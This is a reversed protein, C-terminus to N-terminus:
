RRTQTADIYMVKYRWARIAEEPSKGNERLNSMFARLTGHEFDYRYYDQLEPSLKRVFHVVRQNWETRQQDVVRQVDVCRPCRYWGNYNDCMMNTAFDKAPNHCRRCIDRNEM